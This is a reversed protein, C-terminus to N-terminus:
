VNGTPTQDMKRQWFVWAPDLQNTEQGDNPGELEAMFEWHSEPSSESYAVGPRQYWDGKAVKLSSLRYTKSRQGAPAELLRRTARVVSQLASHAPTDEVYLFPSSWRMASGNHDSYLPIQFSRKSGPLPICKNGVNVNWPPRLGPFLPSPDGDTVGFDECCEAHRTAHFYYLWLREEGEAM